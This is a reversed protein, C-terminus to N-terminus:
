KKPLGHLYHDHNEALDPPLGSAIGIIPKLRDYLSLKGKEKKARRPGAKLPRVSVQLGEPLATPDDLVVMGNKVHGRYTM